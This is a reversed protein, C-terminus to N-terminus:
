ETDSLLLCLIVTVFSFYSFINDKNLYVRSSHSNRAVRVELMCHAALDNGQRVLTVVDLGRGVAATITPASIATTTTAGTTEDQVFNSIIENWVLTM